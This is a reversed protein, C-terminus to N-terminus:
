AAAGRERRQQPIRGASGGFRSSRLKILADLEAHLRVADDFGIVLQADGMCAAAEVEEVRADVEAPYVDAGSHAVDALRELAAEVDDQAGQEQWEAVLGTITDHRILDARLVIGLGDSTPSFSLGPKKSPHVNM